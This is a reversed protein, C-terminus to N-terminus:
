CQNWSMSVAIRFFFFCKFYTIKIQLILIFIQDCLFHDSAPLLLYVQFRVFSLNRLDEEEEEEEDQKPPITESGPLHLTEDEADSLEILAGEAEAEEEQEEEQLYATTTDEFKM